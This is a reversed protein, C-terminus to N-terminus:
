SVECVYDKLERLDTIMFDPQPQQAPYPAPNFLFWCTDIGASHGGKIDTAPNDGVCLIEYLPLPLRSAAIRFFEPDPKVVGIDESIVIDHFFVEIEARAFRGRQVATLGNTFLCLLARRSLFEIVELANPLLYAKTSLSRTFREAALGIDAKIKYADFLSKFRQLSAAQFDLKGKEVLMTLHANVERFKIQAM